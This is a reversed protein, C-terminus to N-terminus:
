IDTGNLISCYRYNLNIYENRAFYEALWFGLDMQVSDNKWDININGVKLSASLLCMTVSISRSSHKPSM